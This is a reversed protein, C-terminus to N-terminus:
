GPLRATVGRQPVHVQTRLSAADVARTFDSLPSRQITYDDVHIPVAHRPAVVRLLEAGQDGDMTLLVGLLSTGGLHVLACDLDPHRRPVDRLADHVLTDGTIYLRYDVEDGRSVELVSGMVPPLVAALPAPGHIGPTATIRLEADDRLVSVTEWTALPVARRFGQRRLKRAAHGTTVIAVDRDLDRAAVEDFHDGHHHSLVVLDLPPLDAIACAPEKLRRSRLGGGLKARQGAHLFNPDTLVTFGGLRLLVTANGIFTLEEMEGATVAPKLRIPEAM